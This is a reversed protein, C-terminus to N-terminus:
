TMSLEGLDLAEVVKVVYRALHGEPLWDQVSSPLLFDVDRNITRSHSM